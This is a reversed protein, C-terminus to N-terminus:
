PHPAPTTSSPSPALQSLDTTSKDLLGFMAAEAALADRGLHGRVGRPSQTGTTPRTRRTCWGTREALGVELVRGIQSLFENHAALLLCRHFAV